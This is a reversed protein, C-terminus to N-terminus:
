DACDWSRPKSKSGEPPLGQAPSSDKGCLHYENPWLLLLASLLWEGKLWLLDRIAAWSGCHLWKESDFLSFFTAPSFSLASIIQKGMKKWITCTKKEMSAMLILIQSTVYVKCLIPTQDFSGWNWGWFKDKGHPGEWGKSSPWTCRVACPLSQFLSIGTLCSSKSYWM